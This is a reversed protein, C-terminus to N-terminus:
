LQEVIVNGEKLAECIMDADEQALEPPEVVGESEGDLHEIPLAFNQVAELKKDLPIKKSTIVEYLGRSVTIM